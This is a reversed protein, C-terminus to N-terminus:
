AHAVPQLIRTFRRKRLSRGSPKTEVVSREEVFREWRGMDEPDMDEISIGAMLYPTTSGENWVHWMVTGMAKVVEGGPPLTMVLEVTRKDFVLHPVLDPDCPDDELAVSVGERSVNRTQVQLTPVHTFTGLLSMRAPVNAEFREMRRREEPGATRLVSYGEERDQMRAVTEVFELWYERYRSEIEELM